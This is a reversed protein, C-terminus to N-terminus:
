QNRRPCEPCTAPEAAEIEAALEEGTARMTLALLRLDTGNREAVLLAEVLLVLAPRLAEVAHQDVSPPLTM